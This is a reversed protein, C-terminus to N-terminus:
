VRYTFYSEGNDKIHIFLINARVLKILTRSARRESINAIKCLEKVTIKEHKDLYDFVIKENKGIAYNTLSKESSQTQMIKIMEKSALISKDNVRLYVQATKIDLYKKYDQIRHPKNKSEEIQVVMIEKNNIEFVYTKFNIPPECYRLATEKILEYDSKESEIGYISKDDDVGLILYGGSTNAFAILEKAIKEYTSFRQKFEVHIGEGAEILELVKKRNM